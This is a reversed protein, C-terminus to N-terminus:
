ISKAEESDPYTSKLVDYFQKSNKTDNLKEFSVATNLILRPMYAAKDYLEASTKYHLIAESYSKESFAIEGLIFNSRAPKYKKKLAEEFYPKAKKYEKKAFLQDGTKLLEAGSKSSLSDPVNGSLINVRDELAIFASKPVYNTSISDVLITLDKLTKKLSAQNAIEIEGNEKIYKSLEKKLSEISANLNDDTTQLLQLTQDTKSIKLNISDFVSRIGDIQINTNDIQNKIGGVDKGINQVKNSTNLLYKENETLGYPNESDLRGADFASPEALSLSVLLSTLLFFIKKM